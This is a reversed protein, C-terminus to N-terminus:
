ELIWRFGKARDRLCDITMGHLRLKWVHSLMESSVPISIGRVLAVWGDGGKAMSGYFKRILHPCYRERM